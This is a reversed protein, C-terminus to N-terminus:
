KNMWKEFDKPNSNVGMRASVAQQRIEEALNKQGAELYLYIKGM